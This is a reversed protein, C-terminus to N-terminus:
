AVPALGEGDTGAEEGDGPALPVEVTLATSGPASRIQLRGGIAAARVQMNRLGRGGRTAGTDFGRGNDALTIRIVQADMDAHATVTLATARAHQLVNTIGELLLYQLEQVKRATFHALAPLREVEWHIDLGGDAIRPGLRYRLNGLVAALDGGTDQMADISLKLSDLAHRVQVAIEPSSAKGSELMSITTVLQSGLGDHMDRLIRGRERLATEEAAIKQTRAFAARLQAERQAVRETLVQNADQLSQVASTYREVLMWAMVVSFPVSVYRTMSHVWYYDGTLWVKIWDALFLLASVGVTAALLTAERSPRRLAGWVMAGAVTLIIGVKVLWSLPFVMPHSSMAALPAVVPLALWLYANLTRHLWRWPVRIVLLCFRAIAGLFVERAAAVIYSRLEAPIALDDVFYDLLRVSWAVEALGYLGFLPDRQRWWILLALGGLVVSLVAAILPGVVRLRFAQEFQARVEAAPGVTVPLLGSRAYARAAVTIRLLNGHARALEPPVAVYYPRKALASSPADLRGGAAILVGNVRVEYSGGAWPVFLGGPDAAPWNRDFRLEYALTGSKGPQERDWYDPLTLPRAPLVTGDTLTASRTAAALEMTGAAAAVGSLMLCAWALLVVLVIRLHRPRHLM